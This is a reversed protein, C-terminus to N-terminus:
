WTSRCSTREVVSMKKLVTTEVNKVLVIGANNVLVNLKGFHDATQKLVQQWGDESTVDQKIFIAGNGALQATEEGGAVNVDTVVVRGGEEALRIADARGLGAGGGTVLCVKGEIRGM